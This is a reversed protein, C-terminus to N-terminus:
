LRVQTRGRSTTGCPTGTRPTGLCARCRRRQSLTSRSMTSACGSAAPRACWRWTTVQLCAPLPPAHALHLTRCRCCLLLWTTVCASASDVWRPQPAGGHAGGGCVARLGYRRPPLHMRRPWCANTRSEPVTHQLGHGAATGAAVCAQLAHPRGLRRGSGVAGQRVRGVEGADPCDDTTNIM